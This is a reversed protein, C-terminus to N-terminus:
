ERVPLGALALLERRDQHQIWILFSSDVCCHFAQEDDQAGRTGRITMALAFRAEANDGPVVSIQGGVSVSARYAYM